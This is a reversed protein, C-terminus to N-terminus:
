DTVTPLTAALHGWLAAEGAALNPTAPSFDRQTHVNVALGHTTNFWLSLGGHINPRLFLSAAGEGAPIDALTRAPKPRREPPLANIPMPGSTV